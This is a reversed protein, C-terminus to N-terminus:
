NGEPSHRGIRLALPWAFRRRQLGGWAARLRGALEPMPDVGRDARYRQTASWTAVYGLLQELTWAVEM